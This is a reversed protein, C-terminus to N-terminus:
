GATDARHMRSHGLEMTERILKRDFLPIILLMAAAAMVRELTDLAFYDAGGVLLASWILPKGAILASPPECENKAAFYDSVAWVTLAGALAGLAYGVVGLWAGLSLIAVVTVVGGAIQSTLVRAQAGAAALGWRSHGSMLTVPIMWAMVCLLPAAGLLKSGLTLAIIPEAFVSLLAACVMGGWATLRMSRRLLLGLAERSHAHARTVSPYLNFHYVNSFQSVSVVIRSAGAFWAVPVGGVLAAILFLPIYQNFAWVLNTSGIAAGERLLAGFGAFPRALPSATFTRRQMWLTYLTMATIGAVEAWGVLLVDQTGRVTLLIFLCFVTMRVIDALSVVSMRGTAQFLWQQRWPASLLSLAFLWVLMAPVTQKMTMIAIGAMVPIGILAIMLRAAPIQFALLDREAPDRAYRRTGLVGLGGDVLLAFFVSLGVVYEVAGYSAPELKRALWAFAVFALVRSGIQGGVLMLFDRFLKLDRVM